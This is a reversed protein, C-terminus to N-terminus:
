ELKASAIMKEYDAKLDNVETDLAGCTLTYARGDKFVYLIIHRMKMGSAEGSFDFRRADCASIALGSGACGRTGPCERDACTDCNATQFLGHIANGVAGHDSRHM